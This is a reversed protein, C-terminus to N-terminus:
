WPVGHMAIDAARAQRGPRRFRPPRRVSGPRGPLAERCKAARLPSAVSQNQDDFFSARRHRGGRALTAYADALEMPTVSAGGIALSLGFRDPTQALTALGMAGMVQAARPVGVKSLLVMAPLNRSQALADSAAIPGLFDRDYDKPEYDAWATPSDQLISGPSCIGEDFAAAYIFPKLTSGSSHPRQTLDISRGASQGDATLSVAALCHGTPTDLVVVAAATVHSASLERLCERTALAAQHEIISDITTKLKRGPYKAALDALTPLLGDSENQPLAHWEADIAENAAQDRQAATIMGCALMRDLVHNRRARALDPNRDPRLRNPSQPIGALLASQGLSLERCPRNFYRWSAAGAGVLNGGFPAANLYDVLMQEKSLRRDIQAGGIAQFVKNLLSHPAPDRLRLLQMPITSAGRRFSLSTIDQEAAGVMSRWDVGHHQYFRSDEIAVIAQLLHPSIENQTLPISWNGDSDAFAAISNGSRDEIWSSAPVAGNMAAPYPLWRVGAAFLLPGMGLLIALCSM